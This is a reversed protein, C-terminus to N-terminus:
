PARAPELEAMFRDLADRWPAPAGVLGELRTTDLVSYSPREAALPYDSTSCSSLRDLAGAREFIPRAVDFWTATGANAAHVTGRAHQQVLGWTWASL